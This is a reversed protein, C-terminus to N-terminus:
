RFCVMEVTTGAPIQDVTRPIQVYGDAKTMLTIMGSKGKVPHFQWQNDKWIAQVMQCTDRGKAPRIDQSIIGLRKEVPPQTMQFVQPLIRQSLIDFVLLASVPHGPLGIVLTEGIRALITPKGPKFAMGHIFVQGGAARIADATVDKEGMSSGGSILILDCTEKAEIIDATLTALDDPTIKHLAVELGVTHCHAMLTSTNVDRIQGPKPEQDAPVLEDGTSLLGVRPARSITVETVGLAALAGIDQPRLRQGKPLVLQGITMDSGPLIMNTGAEPAEKIFVADETKETVEVMVMADAGEPIMAGTTVYVAQGEQLEISSLEGMHSTGRLMLQVPQGPSAQTCNSAKVAYGDVTSRRFAPITEKSVIDVALTQNIARALPVRETTPLRDALAQTYLDLAEAVPTMKLPKM